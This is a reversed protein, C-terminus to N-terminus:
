VCTGLKSAVFKDKSKRYSNLHPFIEERRGWLQEGNEVQALPARRLWEDLTEIHATLAAHKVEVREEESEGADGLYIRELEIAPTLWPDSAFSVALTGVAHSLGLGEALAGRFRYESELGFSDGLGVRFPARNEFGRLFRWEDRLDASRAMLAGLWAGDGLPVATLPVSSHLAASPQVKRLSQLTRVLGVVAAQAVYEDIEGNPFSLENLFALFTM